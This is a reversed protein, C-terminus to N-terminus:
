ADKMEVDDETGNGNREREVTARDASEEVVLTEAATVPVDEGEPQGAVTEIEKTSAPPRTAPPILESTGDGAGSVGTGSPAAPAVAAGAPAANAVSPSSSSASTSSPKKSMPRSSAVSASASASAHSTRDRRGGTGEDESDSFEDDRQIRADLTHATSRSSFEAFQRM